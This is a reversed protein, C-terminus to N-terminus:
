FLCSFSKKILPPFILCSICMIAFAIEGSINWHKLPLLELILMHTVYFVMSEKGIYHLIPIKPIHKFFNNIVICGSISFAIALLIDRQRILCKNEFRYSLPTNAHHKYLYYHSHEHLKNHISKREVYIRIFVNFHWTCCEGFICAQRYTSFPM